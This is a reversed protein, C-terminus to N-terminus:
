RLMLCNTLDLPPMPGPFYIQYRLGFSIQWGGEEYGWSGTGYTQNQAVCDPTLLYLDDPMAEPAVFVVGQATTGWYYSAGDTSVYVIRETSLAVAPAISTTLFLLSTVIRSM